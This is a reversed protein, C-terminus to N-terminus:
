AAEGASDSFAETAEVQEPALLTLMPILFPAMASTMLRVQDGLAPPSPGDTDTQDAARATRVSEEQVLSLAMITMGFKFQRRLVDREKPSRKVAALLHVNAMNVYYDYTDQGQPANPDAKIVVATNRDFDDHDKWRDEEVEYPEPIALWSDASQGKGPQEPQPKPIPSPSPRPGPPADTREPKITLAFPIVFPEVRSPDNVEAVFQVVDGVAAEAPLALSVHAEGGALNPSRWNKAPVLEGNVLQRLGFTGHEEDRSFYDDQADTDFALRVQSNLSADRRYIGDPSVKRFRFHTPFRHLEPSTTDTSVEVPKFPNKIKLGPGLIAALQPHRKLMDEMFRRLSDESQPAEARERNRRAGALERLKGHTRLKDELVEELRRKLESDRLRDRSPMFLTEHSRVSIGTCDVFVLLSNWLYDQKVSARRFFDKSLTAQAQGNYTFVIGEDRRYTKATEPNKLLYIRGAFPEGDVDFTFRDYYEVADRKPDNRDKDLTRVVGVMSTDFSGSHGKFGVRCEHFRIPLAPEPFLLRVRNMFGDPLIVNTRTRMKFEYLKFLTGWEADRAYANQLEPLMRVPGGGFHLLARKGKADAPGPALFTFRSGKGGGPEPDQRRIVTYSWDGDSPDELTDPLLSPNRRSLVFQVNHQRGCFELVGTGGMHFRGQVFKIDRKSGGLVSLITRPMSRPTQGEGDDTISLSMDGPARAGTAAVSISRALKDEALGGFFRIKADEMTAPAEPGSPEIGAERCAAILKTDISNVLKEVFAAEARSQQNGITSYNEPQDGLDRWVTADDWFGVTSLVDIVNQESDAQLLKMCLDRAADPGM